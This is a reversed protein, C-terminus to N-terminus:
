FAPWARRGGLGPIVVRMQDAVSPLPVDRQGPDPHHQPGSGSRARRREQAAGPQGQRHRQRSAAIGEVLGHDSNKSAKLAAVMNKMEANMGTQAGRDVGGLTKLWTNMRGIGQQQAGIIDATRRKVRPDRVNNLVTKSMDGAGQHHVIMMSLFACDFAKGKLTELSGNMTTAHKM